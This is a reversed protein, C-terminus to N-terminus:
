CNSVKKKIRSLSEPAIGLYSALYKQPILEILERSSKLLECYYDEATRSHLQLEKLERQVYLLEIMRRGVREAAPSEDYLTQMDIYSMRFLKLDTLAEVAILSPQQSIFSSYSNFITIPFNFRLTYEVGNRMHSLRTVGEVLFYMYNEVEGTHSLTDNKKYEKYSLRKDFLSWDLESIPVIHNIFHRLKEKYNKKMKRKHLYRPLDFTNFFRNFM